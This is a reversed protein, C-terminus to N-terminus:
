TGEGYPSKKGCGECPISLGYNCVNCSKCHWEIWDRYTGCEKCHWTDLQVAENWCFSYYYVEGCETCEYTEMLNKLSVKECGCPLEYKKERKKPTLAKYKRINDIACDTLDEEHITMNKM